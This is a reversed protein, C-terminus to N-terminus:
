DYILPDGLHLVIPFDECAKLKDDLVGLAEIILSLRGSDRSPHILVHWYGRSLYISEENVSFTIDPFPPAKMNEVYPRLRAAVEASTLKLGTQVRAEHNFAWPFADLEEQTPETTRM